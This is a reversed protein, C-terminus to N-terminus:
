VASITQDILLDDMNSVNFTYGFLIILIGFSYTYTYKLICFTYQSVQIYTSNTYIAYIIICRSFRITSEIYTHIYLM